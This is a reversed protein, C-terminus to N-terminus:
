PAFTPVVLKYGVGHVTLLYCPNQPDPEIKKRLNKIHTDITREFAAYTHGELVHLLELRTFVRKPHKLLHTLLNFETATLEINTGGKFLERAGEDLTFPGLNYQAEAPAGEGSRRLVAKIRALLERPSFPKVVYDDAGLELGVVRDAEEARATLMIIPTSGTKRIAQAVQIGEMDPLMWDLVVLDVPAHNFEALAAQGTGATRVSFGANELYERLLSLLKVEDDVVLLTAM